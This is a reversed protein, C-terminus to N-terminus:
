HGVICFLYEFLIVLFAWFQLSRIKILNCNSLWSLIFERLSFSLLFFDSIPAWFYSKTPNLIIFGQTFDVFVLNQWQYSIKFLYIVKSTPVLLFSKAKQIENLLNQSRLIFLALQVTVWGHVLLTLLSKFFSIYWCLQLSDAKMLFQFYKGPQYRRVTVVTNHIHSWYHTWLVM